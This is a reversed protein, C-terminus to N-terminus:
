QFAERGSREAGTGIPRGTHFVRVYTSSSRSRGTGGPTGPSSYM